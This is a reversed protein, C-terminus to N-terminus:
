NKVYEVDVYPSTMARLLASYNMRFSLKSGVKIGKIGTINVILHDSSAGEIILEKQCPILGRPDIDQKGLALIARQQVGKDVIERKEGFANEGQQGQISTPKEKLEIVEARLKFTSTVTGPFGDGSPVEKGLLITEGIRLQNAESEYDDELLLPLSSSNGGSIIDLDLNFKVEVEDKIRGLEKMKEKSPLIGMFCALNTGLGALIINSLDKVERITDLVENPLVGERRDGLDIMLIIRHRKNKVEASQNLRKIVKLESNLSIDAYDVVEDIQSLMPSRLLMLETDLSSLRRLNEIRSDALGEVGADIIAQAVQLDGSVGKTVGWVNIGKRETLSVIREANNKIRSLNIELRPYM